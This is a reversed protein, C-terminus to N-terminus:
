NGAPPYPYWIAYRDKVIARTLDEAKWWQIHGDAHLYHGGGNHRYTRQNAASGGYLMTSYGGIDRNDGIVIKQSPDQIRTISVQWYTDNATNGFGDKNYGYGLFKLNAPESNREPDLTLSPCRLWDPLPDNAAIVIGEMYLQILQYWRDQTASHQVPRLGPYYGLDAVALNLGTGIYRLNAICQTAKSRAIFTSTIPVIIFALVLLLTITVVIELLTM